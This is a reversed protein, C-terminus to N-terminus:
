KLKSIESGDHGYLNRVLLINRFNNFRVMMVQLDLILNVVTIALRLNVLIVMALNRTIILITRLLELEVPIYSLNRRNKKFKRTIM